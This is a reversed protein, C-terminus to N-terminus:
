AAQFKKRADRRLSEGTDPASAAFVARTTKLFEAAAPSLMNNERRLVGIERHIAPDVIRAGRLRPHGLLSLSMSPLATVGLGAEVMAGLTYHHCPEYVPDLTCGEKGFAGELVERVNMHRALVLLPYRTLDKIRVTRRSALAHGNPYVAIFHDEALRDFSIDCNRPPRPGVGFDVELNLVRNAGIAAPEDLVRVKVKAYQQSFVALVRPLISSAITPVCAVTVQGRRLAAEDRLELSVSELESLAHKARILFHQGERTVRVNRTTRSLLPVGLLSELDGVHTSIASQSIHLMESAKRFSLQEAVTIFSRIKILSLNIM